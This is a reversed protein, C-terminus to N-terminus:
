SSHKKKKKRRSGEEVDEATDRSLKKHKKKSKKKPKPVESDSNEVSSTGTFCSGTEQDGRQSESSILGDGLGLHKSKKKRKPVETDPEGAEEGSSHLMRPCKLKPEEHSGENEFGSPKHSKKKKKSQPGLREWEEAVVPFPDPSMIDGGNQAKKLKAMRKAFYEQVTLTSTVTNSTDVREPSDNGEKPDEEPCDADAADAM